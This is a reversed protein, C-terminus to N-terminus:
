SELLRRYLPLQEPDSTTLTLGGVTGTPALLAAAALRKVLQRATGRAGDFLPVGEGVVRSIAVRAFPFHTCGLVVADPRKDLYPSLLATLYAGCERSSAQGNEVFTVLRPAPVPYIDAQERYAALLKAFKEEALTLATALVLVRPHPAVAVAPRLAPEMGVIIRDPFRRRLTDAAVATATNCALVLAKCSDLLRTAHSLVLAAIEDATREGYPANAADGFYLFQERPLLKKVERLVGIGGAGSDFLAVPLDPTIHKSM